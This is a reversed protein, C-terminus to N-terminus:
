QKSVKVFDVGKNFGLLTAAFDHIKEALTFHVGQESVTFCSQLL